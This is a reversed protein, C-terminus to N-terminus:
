ENQEKTKFVSHEYTAQEAKKQDEQQCCEVKDEKEKSHM